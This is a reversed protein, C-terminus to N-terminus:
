KARGKKAAPSLTRLKAIEDGLGAAGRTVCWDAWLRGSRRNAFVLYRGGKVFNEPPASQPCGQAAVRRGYVFRVSHASGKFTEEVRFRGRVIREGCEPLIPSALIENTDEVLDLTGLFAVDAAKLDRAADPLFCTALTLRAGVLAVMCAGFIARSTV